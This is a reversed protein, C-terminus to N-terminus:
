RMEAIKPMIRDMNELVVGAAVGMKEAFVVLYRALTAQVSGESANFNQILDANVASFEAIEDVGIAECIKATIGYETLADYDENIMGAPNGEKDTKDPDKDVVLDTYLAILAMTYNIRSANMDIYKVGADTVSISNDLMIQLIVRKELVPCYTRKIHSRLMQEKVKDSNAKNYKDIFELVTM